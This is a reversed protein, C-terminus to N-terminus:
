NTRATAADRLGSVADMTVAATDCPGHGERSVVKGKHRHEWGAVSDNEVSEKRSLIGSDERKQPGSLISNMNM